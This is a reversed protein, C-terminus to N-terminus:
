IVAAEEVELQRRMLELAQRADDDSREEPDPAQPDKPSQFPNLTRAAAEIATVQDPSLGEHSRVDLLLDQIRRIEVTPDAEVLMEDFVAASRQLLDMDQETLQLGRQSRVMASCVGNWCIGRKGLLDRVGTSTQPYAAFTVPSVDYLKVKLLERVHEDEETGWRDSITRFGFSSQDADGREISEVLDTAYSQNGVQIRYFLGKEDLSLDL